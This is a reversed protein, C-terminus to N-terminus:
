PERPGDYLYLHNWGDRESMWVIEKGDAVDYRYKKGSYCFFTKPEESIIARAKGTAADVEIVRYVQHGRQNYEFTFARGDKRWALDSMEFANPFLGNDIDIQKKTEVDFLVPQQIDLADGPKAYEMTSTNPSSNTPPPPSSTNSAYPSLRPPRSVRRAEEFRAVLPHVAYSYFNGENGDRSLAIGEKEKADKADKRRVHVNFNRIFADWNGDPSSKPEGPVYQSGWPLPWIEREVPGLKRARM